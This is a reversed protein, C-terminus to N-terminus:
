DLNLIYDRLEDKSSKFNLVSEVILYNMKDRCFPYAYKLLELKNKEFNLLGAIEAIQQASMSSSRIVHKAVALRDEDFNESEVLKKAQMFCSPSCSHPTPHSVHHDPEGPPPPPLPQNSGHHPHPGYGAGLKLHLRTTTLIDYNVERLFYKNKRPTYRTIYFNNSGHRVFIKTSVKPREPSNLTIQVQHFGEPLGMLCINQVPITTQLVGNVSIWFQEHLHETALSLTNQAFLWASVLVFCLSAFIRKM